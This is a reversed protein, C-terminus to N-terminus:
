AELFVKGWTPRGIQILEANLTAASSLNSWLDIVTSNADLSEFYNLSTETRLFESNNALICIVSKSSKPSSLVSKQAHGENVFEFDPDWFSISSSDIRYFLNRYLELGFSDRTDNTKPQGKFALGCILVNFNSTKGVKSVIYNAVLHM